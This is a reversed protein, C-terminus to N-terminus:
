ARGAARQLRRAAKWGILHSARQFWPGGPPPLDSGGLEAIREAMRARLDPHEPYFTYLFNQMVNACSLRAESDSRRALLHGTGKLISHFASEAAARTKRSSLSGPIGSRYYLRAGPTFRVEEAHCLVRAFFEFDNILSLSEDWGGSRELIQRPILWLGCQMMPQADRWAQVLWDLPAMDKWVEQSSLSFSNIDDGYFRGWPMSAIAGSAGDLRAVQCDISDPSLFDDSDLFKILDGSSMRFAHNAASCQGSNEQVYIKVGHLCYSELVNISGDSSGDDVVLIEINPYSQRLLSEITEGVHKRSNYCPICVSVLPKLDSM